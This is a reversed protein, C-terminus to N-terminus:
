CRRRCGAGAALAAREPACSEPASERIGSGSKKGTRLQPDVPACRACRQPGSLRRGFCGERVTQRRATIPRGFAHDDVSVHRHLDFFALRRQLFAARRYRNVARKRLSVTVMTKRQHQFRQPCEDGSVVMKLRHLRCDLFSSINHRAACYYSLPFLRPPNRVALAASSSRKAM